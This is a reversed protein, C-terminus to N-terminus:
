RIPSSTDLLYHVCFRSVVLSVGLLVGASTSALTRLPQPEPHSLDVAILQGNDARWDTRLWFTDGDNGVFEYDADFRDALAVVTADPVDLRRYFVANERDSGRWVNIVLFRGDESVTPSFGWQKEQPNDFVLVDDSQPTGIRHLYLKQYYNVAQLKEDGSPQDYRSYYFGSADPLWAVDSFKIWHLEDELDETTAVDRVRWTQWDSGAESVGYALLQGDDSAKLGSLAVTGDASFTNPDLLVRPEEDLSTATYLVDQDQLGTNQMFFYRGGKHSPIGFQPYDNLETLRREIWEHGTSADLYQRAVDNEAAVWRATAASDTDELWRYPDAVERGHYNDVQDGRPTEPYHLMSTSTVSPHAPAPASDAAPALTAAICSLALCCVAGVVLRPSTSRRMSWALTKAVHSENLPVEELPTDDSVALDRKNSRLSTVVAAVDISGTGRYCFM